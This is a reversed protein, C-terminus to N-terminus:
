WKPVPCIRREVKDSALRRRGLAINASVKAATLSSASQVSGRWLESIKRSISAV